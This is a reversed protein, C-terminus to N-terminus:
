FEDKFISDLKMSKEQYTLYSAESQKKLLERLLPDNAVRLMQTKLDDANQTAFILGSERAYIPLSANDSLILPVGFSQAELIPIGFGEYFSAFVFATAHNYFTGLEARSIYGPLKVLHKVPSRKLMSRFKSNRWGKGGVIVLEFDRNTECFKEFARLITAHNKRPEMTGVTLFYPKGSVHKQEINEDPFPPLSPHVVFIEHGSKGFIDMVDSKTAESNVILFDSKKIIRRLFLKHALVSPWPHLHPFKIPTLDHIVTARRTEAAVNFPGFHALEVVLDPKMENVIQPITILQRFRLHLPVLNSVPVIIQQLALDAVKKPTIIFYQHEPYSQVIRNVLGIGYYHIGANQTSISDGLFIVKM